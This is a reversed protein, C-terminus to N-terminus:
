DELLKKKDEPLLPVSDKLGLLFVDAEDSSLLKDREAEASVDVDIGIKVDGAFDVEDPDDDSWVERNAYRTNNVIECSSADSKMGKNSTAAWTSLISQLDKADKVDYNPKLIVMLSSKPPFKTMIVSSVETWYVVDYVKKKIFACSNCFLKEKLVITNKYKRPAIRETQLCTLAVHFGMENIDENCLSCIDSGTWYHKHTKQDFFLNSAM